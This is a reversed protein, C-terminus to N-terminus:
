EQTCPPPLPASQPLLQLIPSKKEEGGWSKTRKLGRHAKGSLTHAMRWKAMNGIWIGKYGQCRHYPMTQSQKATKQPATHRHISTSYPNVPRRLCLPDTFMRPVQLFLPVNLASQEEQRKCFKLATQRGPALSGRQLVSRNVSGFACPLLYRLQPFTHM